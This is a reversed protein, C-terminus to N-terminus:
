ALEPRIQEDLKPVSCGAEANLIGSLSISLIRFHGAM